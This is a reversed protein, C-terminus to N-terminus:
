STTPEKASTPEELKVKGPRVSFISSLTCIVPVGTADQLFPVLLMPVVGLVNGRFDKLGDLPM